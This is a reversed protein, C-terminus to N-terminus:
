TPAALGPETAMASGLDLWRRELDDLEALCGALEGLDIDHDPEFEHRFVLREVSTAVVALRQLLGSREDVHCVPETSWMWIITVDLRRLTRSPSETAAKAAFTNM